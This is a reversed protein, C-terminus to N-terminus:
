RESISQTVVIGCQECAYSEVQVCVSVWRELKKSIDESADEIASEIGHANVITRQKSRFYPRDVNGDDKVLEAQLLHFGKLCQGSRSCFCQM